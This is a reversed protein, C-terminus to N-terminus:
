PPPVAASRREQPDLLSAAFRAIVQGDVPIQCSVEGGGQLQAQIAYYLPTGLPESVRM